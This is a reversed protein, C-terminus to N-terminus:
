SRGRKSLMTYLLRAISVPWVIVFITIDMSTWIVGKKMIIRTIEETYPMDDAIVMSTVLGIAIYIFMVACGITYIIFMM